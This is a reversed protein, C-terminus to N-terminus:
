AGMPVMMGDCVMLRRHLSPIPIMPKKSSPSGVVAVGDCWRLILGGYFGENRRQSRTASGNNDGDYDGREM